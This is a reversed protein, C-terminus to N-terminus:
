CRKFNECLRNTKPSNATKIIYEIILVSYLFSSRIFVVVMVIVTLMAVPLLYSPLASNLILIGSFWRGYMLGVEKLFSNACIIVSALFCYSSFLLYAAHLAVGQHLSFVEGPHGLAAFSRGGGGQISRYASYRTQNKELLWRFM